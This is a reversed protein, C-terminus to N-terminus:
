LVNDNCHLSYLLLDVVNCVLIATIIVAVVIANTTVVVVIIVREMQFLVIKACMPACYTFVIDVSATASSVVIFVVGCEFLHFTAAFNVTQTLM